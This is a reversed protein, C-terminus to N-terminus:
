EADAGAKGTIFMGAMFFGTLCFIHEKEEM